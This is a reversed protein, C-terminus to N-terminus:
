CLLLSDYHIHGRDSYCPLVDHANILTAVEGISVNTGSVSAVARFQSTLDMEDMRHTHIHIYTVKIEV